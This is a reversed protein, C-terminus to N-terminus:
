SSQATKFIPYTKMETRQTEKKRNHNLLAERSQKVRTTILLAQDDIQPTPTAQGDNGYTARPFTM